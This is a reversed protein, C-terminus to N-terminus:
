IQSKKPRRYGRESVLINDCEQPAISDSESAQRVTSAVHQFSYLKLNTIPFFVTLYISFV